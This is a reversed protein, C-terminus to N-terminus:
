KMLGVKRKNEANNSPSYTFNIVNGGNLTIDYAVLQINYTSQSGNDGNIRLNCYPAFVTGNLTLYSGGNIICNRISTHTGDVIIVYGEYGPSNSPNLSIPSNINISFDHGATLYITVGSTGDLSAFNSGSWSVNRDVCYVGSELVVNKNNPIAPPPFNTYYGPHLLWTDPGTQTPPAPWHTIPDCEAPEDPMFVDVDDPVRIQPQTTDQPVASPCSGFNIASGATAIGDPANLIVSCSTQSYGCSANSNVFINGGAINITGNGGVDVSGGGGGGGCTPSPDLSVIAAGGFLPGGEDALTVAQVVNDTRNIGLVRAFYTNVHSTIIVQVYLENGAYYGSIPPSYVEVENTVHNDDYGNGLARNLAVLDWYTDGNIKALAGALAATDAANQAHRRDSFKVGGDIALAAIGFLGIAALAIVILAQGRESIENAKM